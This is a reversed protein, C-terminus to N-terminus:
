DNLYNAHASNLTDQSSMIMECADRVAGLGGANTTTFDAIEKVLSRANAVAIAVGAHRMPPIDPLDDGLYAVQEPTLQMRECLALFCPLKDSIGQYVNNIKLADARQQVMVSSRGTIIAVDVGSNQLLKIGLGDHVHFAKLSEGQSDFYLRGDTFVGDIDSVLLKIQQLKNVLEDKM